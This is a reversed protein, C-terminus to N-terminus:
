NPDFVSPKTHPVTQLVFLDIFFRSSDKKPPKELNCSGITKMASLIMRADNSLALQAADFSASKLFPVSESDFLKQCFIKQQKASHYFLM